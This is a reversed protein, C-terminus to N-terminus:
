EPLTFRYLYKSSRAYMLNDEASPLLEMVPLNEEENEHRCYIVYSNTHRYIGNQDPTLRVLQTELVRNTSFSPQRFNDNRNESPNIKSPMSLFIDGNDLLTFFNVPISGGFGLNGEPKFFELPPISMQAFIESELIITTSLEFHDDFLFLWPLPNYAAIILNQSNISYKTQNYVNPQYGAPVIRPMITSITDIISEVPHIAILGAEPDIPSFGFSLRNGSLLIEDNLEISSMTPQFEMMPEVYEMEHTYRNIRANNSDQAYIYQQNSTLNMLFEHEGPGKGRRTAERIVVGQKDVEYISITNLDYLYFREGAITMSSIFSIIPEGEKVERYVSYIIDEDTLVIKQNETKDINVFQVPASRVWENLMPSETVPPERIIKEECSCFIILFAWTAPLLALNRKMM